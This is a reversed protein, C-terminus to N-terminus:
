KLTGPRHTDKIEFLGQLIQGSVSFFASPLKCTVTRCSRLLTAMKCPSKLLSHWMSYCGVTPGTGISKRVGYSRYTALEPTAPEYSVAGVGYPWWLVRHMTRSYPGRTASNRM